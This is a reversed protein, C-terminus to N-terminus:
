YLEYRAATALTMALGPKENLVYGSFSLSKSGLPNLSKRSLSWVGSMVLKRAHQM